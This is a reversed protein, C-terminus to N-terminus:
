VGDDEDNVAGVEDVGFVDVVADGHPREDGADNEGAASEAWDCLNGAKRHAELLRAKGQLAHVVDGAARNFAMGVALVDGEVVGFAFDAKFVDGEGVAFFALPYQVVEREVDLRAFFDGDKAANAAAFGGQEFQCGSQVFRLVAHDAQIVNVLSLDVRVEQAAFYRQKRLRRAEEETGQAFVKVEGAGVAEVAVFDEQVCQLAESQLAQYLSVRVPQVHLQAFVAGSEGASLLM